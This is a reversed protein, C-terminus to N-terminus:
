CHVYEKLYYSVVNDLYELRDYSDTGTLKLKDILKITAENHFNFKNENAPEQKGVKFLNLGHNGANRKYDEFYNIFDSHVLKKIFIGNHEIATFIEKLSFTKGLNLHYSNLNKVSTFSIEAVLKAILDLPMFNIGSSYDEIEESYCGMELVSKLRLYMLNKDLDSFIFGDRYRGGVNSIRFVKINGKFNAHIYEEALLKSSAHILSGADQGVNVDTEYFDEIEKPMSKGVIGITSVFNFNKVGNANAWDICNKTGIFNIHEKPNFKSAFAPSGAVHYITDIKESIGNLAVAFDEYLLDGNIVKIRPNETIDFNESLIQWFRKHATDSDEGRVLCVIHAATNRFLYDVLFSGVAGTAGTVLIQQPVAKMYTDQRLREILQEYNNRRVQTDFLRPQEKATVTAANKNLQDYIAQSLTATTGYKYMEEYSFKIGPIKRELDDLMDLAMLSTGGLDFFDDTEKFEEIELVACWTGRMIDKIEELKLAPKQEPVTPKITKAVVQPAQPWFNELEFYPLELDTILPNIGGKLPNIGTKLIESYLLFRNEDTFAGNVCLLNINLYNFRTAEKGSFDIIIVKTAADTNRELYAGFADEDFSEQSVRLKDPHEVLQLIDMKNYILQELTGEGKKTIFKVKEGLVSILFRYVVFQFLVNLVQKDKVSAVSYPIFKEWQERLLTNEQLISTIEKEDYSLLELDLIYFMRNGNDDKNNDENLKEAVNDNASFIISQSISKLQFLRNVKQCFAGIKDAPLDALKKAIHQKLRGLRAETDESLQLYYYLPANYEKQSEKQSVVLHVNTGTLGFSSVGGIREGAISDWAATESQVKILCNKDDIYRNLSRFNAQVPLTGANLAAVLRILGALGSLVDLHGVQGKFSSVACPSASLGYHLFAEKIGTFEIPDGLITGTGHAEIFKIDAPTIEANQWSKILVDKQAESSPATLSSIRAGGHNIASGRIIGYIPDGDKEADELRKLIICIVGEGNMLGDAEDDFPRCAQLDSVVTSKMASDRAIVSIKVGGVLAKSCEGANLSLVANNVATLSSSCSTHIAVVPGRLDLFNALRTGEMGELSDFEGLGDHYFNKYSSKSATYFIGTDSGKLDEETYGADYFAKLAHSLFLRHEPTMKLAERASVNFYKNDFQDIASLFGGKAMETDGYKERIHQLRRPPLGDIYTSNDTLSAILSKWSKIGALEFSLGIIAVSAKM